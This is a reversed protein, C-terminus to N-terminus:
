SEAELASECAFGEPHLQGCMISAERENRVSILSCVFVHECIRRSNLSFHQGAGFRSRPTMLRRYRVVCAYQARSV